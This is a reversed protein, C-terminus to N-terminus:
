DDFDEDKFEDNAEEEHNQKDASFDVGTADEGEFEEDQEEIEGNNDEFDMNEIGEAMKTWLSYVDQLKQLSVAGNKDIRVANLVYQNSFDLEYNRLSESVDDASLTFNKDEESEDLEFGFFKSVRFKSNKVFNVISKIELVGTFCKIPESLPVLNVIEEFDNQLQDNIIFAVDCFNENEECMRAFFDTLNIKTLFKNHILVLEVSEDMKNNLREIFIRGFEFGPIHKLCHHEFKNELVQEQYFQSQDEISDSKEIVFEFELKFIKNSKMFINLCNDIVHKELFQVTQDSNVKSIEKQIIIINKNAEDNAPQNNKSKASYLREGPRVRNGSAGRQKHFNVRDDEFGNKGDVGDEEFHSGETNKKNSKSFNKINEKDETKNNEKHPKNNQNEVTSKKNAFIVDGIKTKSKKESLTSVQNEEKTKHQENKVHANSESDKPFYQIILEPFCIKFSNLGPYVLVEESFHQYDKYEVAIRYLGPDLDKITYLAGEKGSNSENKIFILEEENQSIDNKSSIKQFSTRFIPNDHKWEIFADLVATKKVILNVNLVIPGDKNRLVPEILVNEIVQEFNQNPLVILKYLGPKTNTFEIKLENDSRQEFIYTKPIMLDQITQEKEVGSKIKKEVIASLKRTKALCTSARTQHKDIQQNLLKEKFVPVDYESVLVTKICNSFINKPHLQSMNSLHLNIQLSRGTFHSRINSIVTKQEPWQLTKLKSGMLKPEKLDYSALTIEFLGLRQSVDKKTTNLPKLIVKFSPFERNVALKIDIAKQLYKEQDHRLSKNHKQCGSCYEILIVTEGFRLNSLENFEDQKM